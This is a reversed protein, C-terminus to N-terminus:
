YGARQFAQSRRLRVDEQAGHGGQVAHGGHVDIVDDVVDCDDMDGVLAMHLIHNTVERQAILRMAQFGERCQKARYLGGADPFVAVTNATNLGASAIYPLADDLYGLHAGGPQRQRGAAVHDSWFFTRAACTGCSRFRSRGDACYEIKISSPLTGIMDAFQSSRENAISSARDTGTREACFYLFRTCPSSLISLNEFHKLSVQRLM